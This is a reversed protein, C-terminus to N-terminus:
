VEWGSLMKNLGEHGLKELFRACHFVPGRTMFEGRSEQSCLIICCAGVM